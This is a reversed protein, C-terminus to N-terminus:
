LRLLGSDLLINCDHSYVFEDRVNDFLWERLNSINRWRQPRIFRTGSAHELFVDGFKLLIRSKMYEPMWDNWVRKVGNWDGAGGGASYIFYFRM